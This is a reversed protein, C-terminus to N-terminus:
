TQPEEDGRPGLPESDDLAGRLFDFFADDEAAEVPDTPRTPLARRLLTTFGTTSRVDGDAGHGNASGNKADGNLPAHGNGPHGNGSNMAAAPAQWFADEVTLDIDPAPPAEPEEMTLTSLASEFSFPEAATVPAPPAPDPAPPAVPVVPAPAPEPRNQLIAHARTRADRLIAAAEEHAQAIVTEVHREVETRRAALERRLDDLTSRIADVSQGSQMAAEEARRQRERAAQVAGELRQMETAAAALYQDVDARSYGQVAGGAQEPPTTEM